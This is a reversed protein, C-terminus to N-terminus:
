TLWLYLTLAAAAIWGFYLMFVSNTIPRTAASVLISVIISVLVVYWKLHWFGWVLLALVCASLVTLAVSVYIRGRSEFFFSPLHSPDLKGETLKLGPTSTSWIIAFALIYLIVM